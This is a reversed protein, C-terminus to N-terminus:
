NNEEEKVYNKWKHPLNNWITKRTSTFRKYLSSFKTCFYIEKDIIIIIIIIMSIIIIIIIIIIITDFIILIGMAAVNGVKLGAVYIQQLYITKKPLCALVM